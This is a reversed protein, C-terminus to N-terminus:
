PSMLTRLAWATHPTAVGGHSDIRRDRTGDIGVIRKGKADIAQGPAPIGDILHEDAGRPGYGGLAAYASPPNGAPTPGAAIRLEGLDARRLLALHYITHLPTDHASFTSFIPKAVRDLVTRYGGPGERGPVTRAFSLHSVAPQLLLLSRVKPAAQPQAAIASLMVKCGYSHGIAHIPAATRQLMDHLLARAGNAGVTGSRDKMLYLTALRVAWRPDLFTPWWGAAAPGAGAGAETVTGVEDLDDDSSPPRGDAQQLAAFTRVIAEESAAEEAVGDASPEIIPQLMRAFERAEAESMKETETLEYFRQWNTTAPLADALQKVASDVSSTERDGAASGAAAMQPGSDSPLWISPWTIGVFIPGPGALPHDSLIQQLHGLFKRYLAVADAFDNNWGHSFFLVPAGPKSALHDLLKARTQPSSCVGNKDFRVLWTDLDIGEIPYPGAPRTAPM